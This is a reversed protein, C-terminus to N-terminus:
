RPPYLPPLSLMTELHISATTWLPLGNLFSALVWYYCWLFKLSRPLISQILAVSPSSFCRPKCWPCKQRKVLCLGCVAHKPYLPTTDFESMGRWLWSLFRSLARDPFVTMRPYLHTHKIVKPIKEPFGNIAIHKGWIWVAQRLSWIGVVNFLSPSTSLGSEPQASRMFLVSLPPTSNQVSAHLRTVLAIRLSREM